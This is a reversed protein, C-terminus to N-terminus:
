LRYNLSVLTGASFLKVNSWGVERIPSKIYPEARLSWNPHLDVEYGLSLSANSFWHRTGTRGSWSEIVGPSTDDFTFNYEETLMIYSSFGATAYIRSNGLNVFNYRLNIPIDILLCEGSMEDPTLGGSWYIPPNYNQGHTTYRVLSQVAGAAVSMNSSINYEVMLGLKYGPENFSNFTGVSSLDPGAVFGVSFRNALDRRPEAMALQPFSPKKEAPTAIESLSRGSTSMPDLSALDVPNIQSRTIEGLLDGLGDRDSQTEQRTLIVGNDAVDDATFVDDGSTYEEDAYAGAFDERLEAENDSQDEDIVPFPGILPSQETSPSTEQELQQTILNLRNYNDFTFYGLISILLLAAATIWRVKRKYALKADRLDLQKELKLWDEERYIIDYEKTKNQFFQELSDNSNKDKM